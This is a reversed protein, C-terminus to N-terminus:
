VPVTYEVDGWSDLLCRCGELGGNEAASLLDPMRMPHCVMTAWGRPTIWVLTDDKTGFEEAAIEEDSKEEQSRFRQLGKSYGVQRAGKSAREWERWRGLSAADGTAMFDELLSWVPRTKLGSRARGPQTYALEMGLGEAGLKSVYRGVEEGARDGSVVHWEQGVRLAERGHKALGAEWRRLMGSALDELLAAESGPGLVAVWHVHVHWGNRGETVEWVRLWGVVGCRAAAGFYAKGSTARRWGARAAAWLAGLPEGRRHRMTFAGMGLVCGEAVALGLVVGIEVARRSLVKSACVPDAWVSGCSQLGAFGAAGATVRVGIGAEEGSSVRGCKTVRPLSSWEWLVARLRHREFRREQSRFRLDSAVALAEFPDLPSGKNAMDRPAGSAGQGSRSRASSVATPLVASATM